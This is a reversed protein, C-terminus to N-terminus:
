PIRSFAGYRELFIAEHGPFRARARTIRGEHEELWIPDKSRIPWLEKRWDILLRDLYNRAAQRERSVVVALMPDFM